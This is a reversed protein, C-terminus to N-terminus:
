CRSITTRCYEFIEEIVLEGSCLAEIMREEANYRYDIPM